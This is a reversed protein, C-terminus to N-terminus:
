GGGVLRVVWVGFHVWFCVKVNDGCSVSVMDASSCVVVGDVLAKETVVVSPIRDPSLESPVLLVPDVGFTALSM